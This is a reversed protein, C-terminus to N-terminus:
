QKIIKFNKKDGNSYLIEVVYYGTPYNKFDIKITENDIENIHKFLLQGNISFLEVSAITIDETSKLKIYLEELVPNPYYLVKDEIILDKEVLSEIDKYNINKSACNVCIVRQTQNGASDYSFQIRPDAPSQGFFLSFSFLNILLLIKLM